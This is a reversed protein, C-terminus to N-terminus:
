IARRELEEPPRVKRFARYLAVDYTVKMGGGIVLPASFALNQMVLGAVTSGVAWFVNRALNTLGSAFTRENPRVVAAVYSQRTPVDMEVLAERCLFLLIAVKFSPAFPVAILFLSSPLHTFVMTKVLGIRRALWAAGLHSAANLTHVAFFVVGLDEEGIGFRRFFWYAVLADTLFGGGFADISFLATLKAVIRKSEPAIKTRNPALGVPNAVEVAPSLFFYLSAVALYLGFYGFFVLRYSHLVSVSLQRQLVIPLAAAMAGLAGGGDLLVNYWALNWTRKIDSVLGPIIAQDLASAASRDTGTGNLMGIFALIALIPLSPSVALALGAVGSLLSLILLFSRRGVRDALLSVLATALAAGALGVAIVLGIALSTLGTRFLYIGLVVGMLGAGFSRLLGAANILALDRTPHSTM